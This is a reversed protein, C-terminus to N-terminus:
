PAPGAPGKDADMWAPFRRRCDELTERPLVITQVCAGRGGAWVVRGWPDIVTSRGDFVLGNGDKGIRNAAIVYSQNEIARAALLTQWHAARVAPWNAVFVAADYATDVNRTWIPFRLDYCIFSRFRWGKLDVTLQQRGPTYVEHEGTMRFLHRKDYTLVRGEPCAWVLRNYYRGQEAIVLSGAIVAKKQRARALLWQVAPGDMSQAVPGPNMTFGTTFMEPLVILDVGAGIGPMLADFMELNAPSDEWHLATQIIAITLDPM